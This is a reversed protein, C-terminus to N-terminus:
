RQLYGARLPQAASPWFSILGSSSSGNRTRNVAQNPMVSFLLGPFTKCKAATRSRFAQLKGRLLAAYRETLVLLAVRRPFSTCLRIGLNEFAHGDNGALRVHITASSSRPQM